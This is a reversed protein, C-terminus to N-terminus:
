NKVFIIKNVLIAFTNSNYIEMIKCEKLVASSKAEHFTIKMDKKPLNYMKEEDSLRNSNTIHNSERIWMKFETELDPNQTINSLKIIDIFQEKNQFHRILNDINEDAGDMSYLLCDCSNYEYGQKVYERHIKKFNNASLGIGFVNRAKYYCNDVMMSITDKYNNYDETLIEIYKKDTLTKDKYQFGKQADSISQPVYLTCKM